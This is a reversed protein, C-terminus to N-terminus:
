LASPRRAVLARDGRSEGAFDGESSDPRAYVSGPRNGKQRTQPQIAVKAVMSEAQLWGAAIAEDPNFDMVWYVFSSRWFRALWAGIFSILPPSTMALVVDHKPLWALRWICALLFSGFDAARRWKAGKGFGTSGIRIIRIGQWTERKPFLRAPDDYARRSTVVTVDHGRERLALALDKLHQGSSAVDPWFTQNLLLFRL